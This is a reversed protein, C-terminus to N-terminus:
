RGIEKRLLALTEADDGIDITCQAGWFFHFKREIMGHCLERLYERDNYCNTDIVALRSTTHSLETLEDLVTALNRTAYRGQYLSGVCCFDCANRCGVGLLVPTFVLRRPDLISYDLRYDLDVGCEYVPHVSHNEVDLLIRALDSIGPNGYVIADCHPALHTTSLRAQFGGFIITKGRKRFEDAIEIGRFIEYGMCSIAIVSADSDFDIDDFHEFCTQREWGPPVIASLAPLALSVTYLRTGKLLRGNCDRYTPQVLYLKKRLASGCESLHIQFVYLAIARVADVVTARPWIAISEACRDVSRQRPVGRRLPWPRPSSIVPAFDGECWCAGRFDNKQSIEGPLSRYVSPTMPLPLDWVSAMLEVSQELASDEEARATGRIGLATHGTATVVQGTDCDPQPQMHGAPPSGNQSYQKGRQNSKCNQRGSRRRGGRRSHTSSGSDTVEDGSRIRHLARASGTLPRM